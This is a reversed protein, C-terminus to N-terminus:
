QKTIANQVAINLKAQEALLIRLNMEARKVHLPQKCELQLHRVSEAVTGHLIKETNLYRLTKIVICVHKTM